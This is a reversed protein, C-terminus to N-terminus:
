VNYTYRMTIRIAEAVCIENVGYVFTYLRRILPFRKISLVAPLHQLLIGATYCRRIYFHVTMILSMVTGSKIGIRIM